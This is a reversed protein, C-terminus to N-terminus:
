YEIQRVLVDRDPHAKKFDDMSLITEYAEELIEQAQYVIDTHGLPGTELKQKTDSFSARLKQIDWGDVPGSIIDWIEIYQTNKESSM